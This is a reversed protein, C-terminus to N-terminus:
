GFELEMDMDMDKHNRHLSAYYDITLEAIFRLIFDEFKYKCTRINWSTLSPWMM